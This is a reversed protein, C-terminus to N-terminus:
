IGIQVYNKIYEMMIDYAYYNVFFSLILFPAFAIRKHKFNKRRNKTFIYVMLCYISAPLFSILYFMYIQMFIPNEPRYLLIGLAMILKIDGFGFIERGLFDSGYGYIFVLPMTFCSIAIFISDINVFVEKKYYIVFALFLINLLNPIMKYGIDVLAIFLLFSILVINLILLRDM